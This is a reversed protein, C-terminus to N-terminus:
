RDYAAWASLHFRPSPLASGLRPSLGLRDLHTVAFVLPAPAEMVIWGLREGITPGWGKRTHRGYPATVFFLAIVTTAALAFMTILLANFVMHENM